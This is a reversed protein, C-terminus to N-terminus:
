KQTQGNRSIKKSGISNVRTVLWVIKKNPIVEVLKQKSYHAGPHDVIFEDNLKTSSGELDKGGWWKAVDNTIHKFVDEPSRAVEIDVTYNKNEM